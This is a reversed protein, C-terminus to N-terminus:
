PSTSPSSSGAKKKLAQSYQRGCVLVVSEVKPIQNLETDTFDMAYDHRLRRIDEKLVADDTGMEAAILCLGLANSGHPRYPRGERALELIELAFAHSEQVIEAPDPWVAIRLENIFITIALGLGYSRVWHCHVFDTMEDPVFESSAMRLKLKQYRERLITVAPQVENYIGQAEHQIVVKDFQSASDDQLVTRARRMMNGLRTMCEVAQSEPSLTYVKSDFMDIWEKDTFVVRDTFISEFLVVARMSLLIKREFPDDMSPRGRMRLIQAAGESHGHGLQNGNPCWLYQQCNMLMLIAGLTEPERAKVPDDLCTRLATLALGYRELVSQAPVEARNLSRQVAFLFAETASDLAMNTGLRRPLDNLYDGYTWALNHSIRVTPKIKDIVSMALRSQECSPMPHIPLTVRHPSVQLRRQDQHHGGRTATPVDGGDSSSPPSASTSKDGNNNENPM